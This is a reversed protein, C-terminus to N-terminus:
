LYIRAVIVGALLALFLVFCIYDGVSLKLLDLKTRKGDVIYGRAEMANALEEARRFSIVFMPVLLSVVQQIKQKLSGEEFDVGRSAQAKMIKNTESVLTPIFRLTLSLMMSIMGVPVKIVKLPSLLAEFGNNIDTNMTTFTLLSTLGIMLVVRFFIFSARILGQDYIKYSYNGFNFQKFDILQVAFVGVIVAIFYLFKIPCYKKTFLWIFLIGIIMLLQYLGFHFHFTYLLDGSQNYVTQLIFTFTMLYLIPKIGKLMKIFPVRTSLFLIIFLGIAGLMVYINPILFLCVMLGITLFIKMRPDLKYIWSNGAVYQGITINDLM